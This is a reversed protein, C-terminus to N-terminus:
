RLEWRSLMWIANYEIAADSWNKNSSTYTIGNFIGEVATLEVWSYQGIAIDNVIESMYSYPNSAYAGGEYAEWLGSTRFTKADWGSAEEGSITNISAFPVGEGNADYTTGPYSGGAMFKNDTLVLVNNSGSTTGSLMKYYDQVLLVNTDPYGITKNTILIRQGIFEHAPPLNIRLVSDRNVRSAESADAGVAVLFLHDCIMSLGVPKKYYPKSSDPVSIGDWQYLYYDTDKGTAIDNSVTYEKSHFIKVKHSMTAGTIKANVMQMTGTTQDIKIKDTNGGASDSFTVKDARLNITGNGINIGTNSLGRRIGLDIENATQRIYSEDVGKGVNFTSPTTGPEIQPNQIYDSGYYELCVYEDETLEFTFWYKEGDTSWSDSSYSDDNDGNIFQQITLKSTDGLVDVYRSAADGSNVVFSCVYKGKSLFIVPSYVGYSSTYKINGNETTPYVASGNSNLWGSGTDVNTLRNSGSSKRVSTEISSSRQNFTSTSVKDNVQTQLGDATQKIQSSEEYSSAEFQTASTGTELQPYRIRESAIYVYVSDGATFTFTVSKRTGSTSTAAGSAVLVSVNSAKRIQVNVNTSPGYPTDFSLTYKGAVVSVSPSVIYADGSNVYFWEDQIKTMAHRTYNSSAACMWEAGTLVGSLLNKGDDVKKTVTSINGEANSIRTNYNAVTAAPTNVTSIWQESAQAATKVQEYSQDNVVFTGDETIETVVMEAIETKKGDVITSIYTGLYNVAIPINITFTKSDATVSLVLYGQTYKNSIADSSVGTIPLGNASTWTGAVVINTSSSKVCYNQLVSVASVLNTTGNGKTVKPKFYAPSNTSIDYTGGDNQNIVLSAPECTVTYGDNGQPGPVTSDDGNKVGRVVKTARVDGGVTYTLTLKTSETITPLTVVGTSQNITGGGAIALTGGMAAPNSTSAVGDVTKRIQVTMTTDGPKVVDDCVIEYVITHEAKIRSITWSGQVGNNTEREARWVMKTFDRLVGQASYMDLIPDFWVQDSYGYPYADKHRNSADPPVPQADNAQEVAFEVDYNQTDKMERPTTWVSQQPSLGDSTFIRTSEWIKESGEPIGDSWTPQGTVAPPIPSAYTNYGSQAANSPTNPTSNSRCFVISKYSSQGSAGEPGQVNKWTYYKYSTADNADEDILAGMWQLDEQPAISFDFDAQEAATMPYVANPTTRQGSTRDTTVARGDGDKKLIIGKAWAIHTFYTKGSEGKFEGLDLWGSHWDVWTSSKSRLEDSWQYLHRDAESVYAWGDQVNTQQGDAGNVLPIVKKDLLKTTNAVSGQTKISTGNTGSLRTYTWNPSADYGSKDAKLTMQRSRRWLYSRNSTNAPTADTWDSEQCDSPMTGANSTAEQNSWAEQTQIYSQQSLGDLGDKVIHITERDVLTSGVYLLFTVNSTFDTGPTLSKYASEVSEGDKAYKITGGSPTVFSGKAVDFKNYSCTLTGPSYQGSKGQSVASASPVLNYTAGGKLGNVTLTLKRTITSDDKATLLVEFEKNGDVVATTAFTVTITDSDDATAASTNGWTVTIGSSPVNNSYGNVSTIFAKKQFGYFMSVNTSVAQQKVPHNDNDCAISDMENDLDAIWPSTGDETYRNHMSVDGFAHWADDKFKRSAWWLVPWTQSVDAPPDDEWYQSNGYIKGAQYNGVKPYFEDKTPDGHDGTYSASNITPKFDEKTLLYIYEVGSGDKGKMYNWKYFRANALDSGADRGPAGPDLPNNDTCMGMWEYNSGDSDVTFGTVAVVTGSNLSISHAYAIHMYSNDGKDGKFEGVDVWGTPVGSEQSTGDYFYLHGTSKVSYCDGYSATVDELAVQTGVIQSHFLVDCSGKMEVGTGNKGEAAVYEGDPTVYRTGNKCWYGDADITWVDADKAWKSWLGLKEFKGYDGNKNWEGGIKKIISCYCFPLSSTPAQPDDYWNANKGSQGSPMWEGTMEDLTANDPIESTREASTLEHNFLKYIYQVGDGDVGQVGWNSWLIPDSFIGWQEDHGANKTRMAMYVYQDDEEAPLATDSWGEPVWDDTTYQDAAPVWSGTGHVKGRTINKPLMETNPFPYVNLRKYIYERDSADEGVDGKDGSIRVASSWNDYTVSKDAATHKVAQTMWLYQSAGSPRNPATATWGNDYKGKTPLTISSPNTDESITLWKFAQMPTDGGTGDEAKTIPINESDLIDNLDSDKAIKVAVSDYASNDTTFSYTGTSSATKQAGNVYLGYGTPLDSLVRKGDVTSKWVKISLTSAAPSDKTVNYPISNPTIELDYKDVDVLKKLTLRTVKTYSTGNKDTYQAQVSVYGTDATMATVVISRNNGSTLTCGVAIMTWTASESVDTSGDYLKAESTVNGSVLTGGSTYLMSDNENTLDIRVSNEGKIRSYVWVGVYEGNKKRREARWVMDSWTFGSPLNDKDREPDYWGISTRDAGIPSNLPIEQYSSLLCFEVDQNENDTQKRPPTWPAPDANSYFWATTEWLMADGTPIGDTWVISSDVVGQANKTSTPVPSDYTGGQPQYSSIDKNTRCFVSSKFAGQDGKEVQETWDNAASSPEQTTYTRVYEAGDRRSQVHNGNSDRWYFSEVMSCLWVSGLHTVQEYYRCKRVWNKPIPNQASGYVKRGNVIKFGGRSVFNGNGDVIDDSYDPYSSVTRENTYDDLELAIQNWYVEQRTFVQKAYGYETIWKFQPAYAEIGTAVSWKTKCCTEGGWWCNKLDFTYVGRYMKWDPADPNGAGNVEILYINMRDPDTTNGFQVVKDGAAPIDSYADASGTAGRQEADHDYEVDFWHYTNDDIVKQSHEDDVHQAYTGQTALRAVGGENVYANNIDTTTSDTPKGQADKAVYRPVGTNYSVDKIKRWYYVNGAHDDLDPTFTERHQKVVNWTQCRVLDDKRFWNEIERDGDKSLFYCRIRNCRQLEAATVTLRVKKYHSFVGQVGGARKGLVLAIGRLLWPVKVESYGLMEENGEQDVYIYDTRAIEAEALTHAVDGASFHTEKVEISNIIMKKRITLYDFVAQSSGSGNDNTIAWGTDALGTGSYSRSKLDNVTETGYVDLKDGVSMNGAADVDNAKVNGDGDFGFLGKAKIWLGKLFGIEGVAEDDSTKSLVLESGVEEMTEKISEEDAERIVPINYTYEEGAGAMSFTITLGTLAADNLHEIISSIAPDGSDESIVLRPNDTNFVYTAGAIGECVVTVVTADSTVAEEANGGKRKMLTAVLPLTGRFAGTYAATLQWVETGDLMWRCRYSVADEAFYSWVTPKSFAGWYGGSSTSDSSDSSGGRIFDRYAGYEYHLTDDTGQMEDTWGEPVWGDLTSDYPTVGEAVGEPDVEGFAIVSPTPNPGAPDDGFVVASESRFYIWERDKSDEGDRVFAITQRTMEAYLVDISSSSSDSDTVRVIRVNMNQQAYFAIIPIHVEAIDGVGDSLPLTVWSGTDGMVYQVQLRAATFQVRTMKFVNGRQDIARIRATIGEEPYYTDTPPNYRVISTSLELEYKEVTEAMITISDSALAVLADGSSSSSSSSDSDHWGWATVVFTASVAGNFDDSGDRSHSLTITGGDMLRADHGDSGNWQRDADEDGSNRAIEWHDIRALDAASWGEMLTATLVLAKDWPVYPTPGADEDDITCGLQVRLPLDDPRVKWDENYQVTGLIGTDFTVERRGGVPLSVDGLRVYWCDGTDAGATGDALGDVTVYPYKDIFVDEQATEDYGASEKKAFVLYGKTTDNKPLRAYITYPSASDALRRNLGTMTWERYDNTVPDPGLDEIGQSYVKIKTGDAVYVALDNQSSNANPIISVASPSIYHVSSTRAM